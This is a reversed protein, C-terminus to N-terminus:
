INHQIDILQIGAATFKRSTAPTKMNSSNNSIKQKAFEIMTIQKRETLAVSRLIYM